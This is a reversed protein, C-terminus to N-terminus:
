MSISFTSVNQRTLYYVVAAIAVIAAVYILVALIRNIKGAESSSMELQRERPLM